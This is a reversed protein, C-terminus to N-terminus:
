SAALQFRDILPRDILGAWAARLGPPLVLDSWAECLLLGDIISEIDAPTGERLVIEYARLRDNREALDFARPPGSWWLHM